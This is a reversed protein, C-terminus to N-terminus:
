TLSVYEISYSEIARIVGDTVLKNSLYGIFFRLNPVSLSDLVKTTADHPFILDLAAPSTIIATSWPLPAGGFNTGPFDTSAFVDLVAAGPAPIVRKWYMYDFILYNPAAGNTTGGMEIEIRSDSPYTPPFQTGGSSTINIYFKISVSIIQDRQTLALAEGTPLFGLNQTAVTYNNPLIDTEVAISNKTAKNENNIVQFFLTENVGTILVAETTQYFLPSEDYEGVVTVAARYFVGKQCNLFTYTTISSAVIDWNEVDGVPQLTGVPDAAETEEQQTWTILDYSVYYVTGDYKLEWLGNQNLEMEPGDPLAQYQTSSVQTFVLTGAWGSIADLQDLTVLAKANQQLYIGTQYGEPAQPFTITFQYDEDAVATCSVPPAPIPTTGINSNLVSETGVAPLAPDFSDGIIEYPLYTTSLDIRLHNLFRTAEGYQAGQYATGLPPPIVGDADTYERDTVQIGQDITDTDTCALKFRGNVLSVTMPFGVQQAQANMESALEMATYLKLQPIFKFFSPKDNTSSNAIPEMLIFQVASSTQFTIKTKDKLQSLTHVAVIFFVVLIVGVAIASSDM